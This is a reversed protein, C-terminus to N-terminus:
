EWFRKKRVEIQSSDYYFVFFLREKVECEPCEWVYEGNECSECFVGPLGLATKGLHHNVDGCDSCPNLPFEEGCKHIFKSNDRNFGRNIPHWYSMEAPVLKWM